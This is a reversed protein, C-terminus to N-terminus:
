VSELWSSAARQARRWENVVPVHDTHDSHGVPQPYSLAGRGDVRDVPAVYALFAVAHALAQALDGRESVTGFVM